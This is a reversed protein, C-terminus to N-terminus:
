CANIAEVVISTWFTGDDSLAQMVPVYDIWKRSDDRILALHKLADLVPKAAFPLNDDDRIFRRRNPAFRVIEVRRRGECVGRCGALAAEPGLLERAVPVGLSVMVANGIHAQWRKRERHKTRWHCGLIENPTSLRAQIRLELRTGDLSRSALTVVRLSAVAAATAM